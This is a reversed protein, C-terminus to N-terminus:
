KREPRGESMRSEMFARGQKGGDGHLNIKMRHGTYIRCSDIWIRGKLIAKRRKV